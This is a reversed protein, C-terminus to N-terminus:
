ARREANGLAERLDRWTRLGGLDVGLGVLSQAVEPAVGILVAEAGLLRVSQVVRLLGHAVHTDVVPVGTVDLLLRRAGWREVAALAEDQVAQLREGDLDGVLPMVLTAASVPLVPVSMARLAQRQTEVKELLRRQEQERREAEALAESLAATREAVRLELDRNAEDLATAAAEARRRADRAAALARTTSFAGLSGVLGAMVILIAGVAVV